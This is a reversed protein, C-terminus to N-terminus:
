QFIQMEQGIKLLQADSALRVAYGLFAPIRTCISVNDHPIAEVLLLQLWVTYIM